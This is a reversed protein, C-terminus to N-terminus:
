QTLRLRASVEKEQGFVGGNGYVRATFTGEIIPNDRTVELSFPKTGDSVYVLSAGTGDPACMVTADQVLFNHGVQRTVGNKVIFTDSGFDKLFVSGEVPM